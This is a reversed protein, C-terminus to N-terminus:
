GNTGSSKALGDNRRAMILGHILNLVDRRDDPLLLQFFDHPDITGLPWPNFSTPDSNIVQTPSVPNKDGRGTLLWMPHVELFAAARLLPDAKVNDHSTVNRVWDSITASSVGSKRALEAQSTKRERICESVRDGFNM